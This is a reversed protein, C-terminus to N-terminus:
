SHMVNSVVLIQWGGYGGGREAVGAAAAASDATTRVM